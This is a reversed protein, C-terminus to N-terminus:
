ILIWVFALGLVLALLQWEAHRAKPAQMEHSTM